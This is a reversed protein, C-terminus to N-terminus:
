DTPCNVANGESADVVFPLELAGCDLFDNNNISVTNSNDYNPLNTIGILSTFAAADNDSIAINGGIRQVNRLATLSSLADNNTVFLSSGILALRNLGALSQLRANDAINVVGAVVTLNDLGALNTLADNDIIGLTAGVSTLNNLATIDTLSPNYAIGLLDAVSRVNDLGTIDTLADNYAILLGGRLQEIGELGRLNALSAHYTISLTDVSTLNGLAKLSILSANEELYVDGGVERLNDLGALTELNDNLSIVLTDSLETLAELGRLDTLQDNDYVSVDDARRLNGLARIDALAPNFAIELLALQRINDLGTLSTLNINEEIQINGTPQTLNELGRVDNLAPNLSILFNNSVDELNDLGQLSRLAGNLVVNFNNTRQLGELGTLNLLGANVGILLEGRVQLLNELGGLNNLETTANIFLDGEVYRLNNLASVDVVDDGPVNPDRINLLGQVVNCPRFPELQSQGMVFFRGSCVTVPEPLAPRDLTETVFVTLHDRQGATATLQLTYQGTADPTFFTSSSDPTDVQARSGAPRETVQWRVPSADFTTRLLVRDGLQIRTDSGAELTEPAGPDFIDPDVAVELVIDQEIVAADPVIYRGVGDNSVVNAFQEDASKGLLAYQGSTSAPILLEYFGTEDSVAINFALRDDIAVMLVTADVAPAGEAMLVRGSLYALNNELTGLNINPNIDDIDPDDIDPDDINPDDINPDDINPDDIDPDDINPDDINPDDIDPDDIDPDDIDPDSAQATQLSIGAEANVGFDFAPTLPYRRKRADFYGVDVFVVKADLPELGNRVVNFDVQGSADIPSSAVLRESVNSSNNDAPELLLAVAFDYLATEGQLLDPNANPPLNASDFVDGRWDFDAQVQTRVANPNDCLQYSGDSFAAADAAADAAAIIADQVQQSPSDAPLMADQPSRPAAFNASRENITFRGAALNQGPREFRYFATESSRTTQGDLTQYELPAKCLWDGQADRAALLLGLTQNTALDLTFRVRGPNEPVAELPSSAIIEGSQTVAVVSDQSLGFLQPVSQNIDVQSPRQQSSINNALLYDLVAANDGRIPTALDYGQARAAQTYLSNFRAVSSTQKGDDTMIIVVNRSQEDIFGSLNAANRPPETPTHSSPTSSCAVLGLLLIVLLLRHLLPM